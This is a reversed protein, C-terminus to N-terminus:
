GAPASSTMSVRDRSRGGPISCVPRRWSMTASWEEAISGLLCLDVIARAVELPATTQVAAQLVVDAASSLTVGGPAITFSGQGLHNSAAFGITQPPLPRSEAQATGTAGNFLMGARVRSFPQIVFSNEPAFPGSGLTAM